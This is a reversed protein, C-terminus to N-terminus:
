AQRVAPSAGAPLESQGEPGAPQGAPASSASGAGHQGPLQSEAGAFPPQCSAPPFSAQPFPQSPFPEQPCPQQPFPQGPFPEQPCPQQPFPQGPFPQSPFPEQSCPQQPFPQGPCFAQPGPQGPFPQGPFPQQPGSPQPFPDDQGQNRSALSLIRKEEGPEATPQLVLFLFLGCVLLLLASSVGIVALPLRWSSASFGLVAGAAIGLTLLAAAAGSLVFPTWPWYGADRMRRVSVAYSPILMAASFLSALPWWVAALVLGAFHCFAMFLFFESRSSRGQFDAFRVFSRRLLCFAREQLSADLPIASLGNDLELPTLCQPCAKMATNCLHQCAPCRIPRCPNLRTGCAPCFRDPAEICAGCSPCQM